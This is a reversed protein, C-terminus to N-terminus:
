IQASPFLRRTYHAWTHLQHIDLSIGRCVSNRITRSLIHQADPHYLSIWGCVPKEVVIPRHPRASYFHTEKKLTKVDIHGIKGISQTRQYYAQTGNTNPLKELFVGILREDNGYERCSLVAVCRTDSITAVPLHLGIWGNSWSFSSFLDIAKSYAHVTNECGSFGAPSLALLGNAKAEETSPTWTFITQADSINMIERQLRLFGRSGEGYVMPMNVDFIGM